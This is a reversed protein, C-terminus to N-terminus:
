LHTHRQELFADMQQTDDSHLQSDDIDTSHISKGNQHLKAELRNKRPRGKGRETVLMTAPDEHLLSVYSTDKRNDLWKLLEEAETLSSGGAPGRRQSHIFAAQNPGLVRGTKEYFVSRATVDSSSYDSISALLEKEKEDLNKTLVVTEHTQKYDCGSHV